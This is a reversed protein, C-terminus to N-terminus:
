PRGGLALLFRALRHLKRSGAAAAITEVRKLDFAALRDFDLRLDDRLYPEFLTEKDGAFRKDCWVKDMLAKEPTAILFSDKGAQELTIGLAYQREPVRQYTFEGVPTRLRRSRGPTVSTLATVREPILGHHSLAYDLSLCSPGHVLNALTERCLPRHRLPEAFTYLGKRIRILDGSRLLRGIRDRPKAYGGLCGLLQQYDFVEESILSRIQSATVM